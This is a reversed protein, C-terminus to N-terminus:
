VLADSARLRAVEDADMDLWSRLIDETQEGLRPARALATMPAPPSGFPLLTVTAFGGLMADRRFVGSRDSAELVDPIRRMRSAAVGADRLRQEVESGTRTNTWKALHVDLEDHHERRGEVTAFRPDHAWEPDGMAGALRLWEGDTEVSVACWEDDGACRYCGQPAALECRNGSRRPAQGLASALLLPGITAVGTEFQALDILRGKGSRTRTTLAEIVAFAAHLGGVYDMWSNSIATPEDVDKGTVMMLGSYAQLNTNMSTWDKRPGNHGYGSMSVFVLRDNLQSLREYGLGLRDMVGASFNETIVDAVSALRTAVDRGEAMKLDIAVSRKNRSLVLYSVDRGLDPDIASKWPADPHQRSEVRVVEAGLDALLRTCFPGALVHTFDLVRIGNLPPSSM